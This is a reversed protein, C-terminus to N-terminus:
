PKQGDGAVIGVISDQISVLGSLKARGLGGGGGVVETQGLHPRYGLLVVADKVDAVGLVAEGDLGCQFKLGLM